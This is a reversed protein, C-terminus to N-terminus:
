GSLQAHGGSLGMKDPVLEGNSDPRRDDGQKSHKLGIAHELTPHTHYGDLQQM